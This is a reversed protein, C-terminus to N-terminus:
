NNQGTLNPVRDAPTHGGLATHARHHNYYHLWVPFQQSRETDTHYARA